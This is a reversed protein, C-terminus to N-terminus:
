DNMMEILRVLLSLNKNGTVSVRATLWQELRHWQDNETAEWHVIWQMGSPRSIGPPIVPSVMPYWITPYNGQPTILCAFCKMKQHGNLEHIEWVAISSIFDISVLHYWTQGMSRSWCSMPKDSFLRFGWEMGHHTEVNKGYKGMTEMM